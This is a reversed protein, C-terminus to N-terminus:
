QPQNGEEIKANSIEIMEAVAEEITMDGDWVLPAVQDIVGYWAADMAKMQPNEPLNMAPEPYNFEFASMFQEQVVKGTLDPTLESGEVLSPAYNSTDVMAQFGEASYILRMLEMAASQYKTHTNIVFGKTKVFPSPHNGKWTPLVSIAYENGTEASLGSVDQWTGVLGFPALNVGNVVNDWRWTMSAGPTVQGSEEVSIQADKAALIFEFGKAFAPDDFGPNTSDGDAFLQWGEVTYAFYDSWQNELTMPFVVNLKGTTEEDTVVVNGEDDVEMVLTKIDPRNGIYSESLEFIKEWTDYADPLNDGNADTTDLGLSELLTLNTVFAMGDYTLPAYVTQGTTNGAQYFSELSNDKVIKALNEELALIHAVNRSVEGDIVMVIDQSQDQQTALLDAAGQGGANEFTVKGAHEPHTEDWLAVIAQGYSDNDVGLRLVADDEIEYQGTEANYVAKTGDLQSGTDGGNSGNDQDGTDPTETRDSGCAVLMAAVLGIILFKLLNKM